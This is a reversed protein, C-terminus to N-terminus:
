FYINKVYMIRLRFCLYLYVNATTHENIRFFSQTVSKLIEESSYLLCYKHLISNRPEPESKHIKSESHKEVSELYYEVPYLCSDTAVTVLLCICYCYLQKWLWPSEFDNM